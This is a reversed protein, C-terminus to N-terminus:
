MRIDFRGVEQHTCSLDPQYYNVAVNSRRRDSKPEERRIWEEWKGVSPTPSPVRGKEAGSSTSGVWVNEKGTSM